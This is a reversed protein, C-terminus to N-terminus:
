AAPLLDEAVAGFGLTRAGALEELLEGAPLRQGQSWVGRLLAGAEPEAFWAPGFRETLMQRLHTELAWARLYRAAYFFPDVDSLWTAAPWDVHVAASLRRAYTERLPDLQAPADQLELEYALKAAYRRLYVFRRARAHAAIPEPEDVGLRDGLWEADATLHEFLFAFGETVSNDGLYRHEFPLHRDVHAYHQAHGAEHFLAEFDDQGGMPSIVLHVEDPVHVPACFARPSKKPRSELDLRVRGGQQPDIAMGRLTAELSPVLRDAPFHADLSPARFFAPLDARRLRDFGFGLQRRLWPEVTPEYATETAELFAATERGLARLDIGSLEECLALMSPWGLERAVAHSQELSTRLLPDLHEAAAELRAREIAARRDPDAENAQAVSSQRLPLREGEVEIELAAERRALEAAEAKTRQGILGQVAFELLPRNGTGRLAEVAQPSVLAQHREYISEVELEDKRGSMHLLYERDLASIFAEAEARYADLDVGALM